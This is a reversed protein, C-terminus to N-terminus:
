PLDLPGALGPLVAGDGVFTPAALRWGLREGRCRGGAV